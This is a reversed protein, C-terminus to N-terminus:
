AGSPGNAGSNQTWSRFTVRVAKTLPGYVERWADTVESDRAVARVTPHQTAAMVLHTLAPLAVTTLLAQKTSKNM